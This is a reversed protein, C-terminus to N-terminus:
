PVIWKLTIAQQNHILRVFYVGSSRNPLLESLQIQHTGPAVTGLSKNSVQRGIADIVSLQTIGASYLEFSLIENGDGPNPFIITNERMLSMEDISLTSNAINIDDIFIANGGGDTIEFKLMVSEDNAFAALNVTELRWQSESTPTFSSFNGSVTALSEGIKSFRPSWTRGCNRSVYVILRDESTATRRAYAVRFTANITGTATRMNLTPSIISSVAGTPLADNYRLSASGTFAANTVRSFANNGTSEILWNEATTASLQPFAANEFGEFAPANIAGISPSITIIQQRTRQNSGVNNSVTLTVSYTGPESYVVSPNQLNSSAPNGGPFSWEWNTIEGNFSLDTFNVSEGSCAYSISPRFDAIPACENVFGDSTGTFTLNNASWLNNRSAVPSSLAAQMRTNQGNTFMIACSSYDMYNQVNDLSGCSVQALNCSQNAVGITNPTDAVGDDQNCNTALGPNNSPGWPHRLNLYHGVEHTLTRAAFNGGTSTGISGFQRNIVVIGDFSAQPASGPLYAYGGAGIGISEVVWINLYRSTTWSVLQKVNDGANFTLPSATRTIGETCNGQPDRRALRFEINCNALRDQFEPIVSTQDQNQLKYDENLIRIADLVQARSINESGYNHIIHVVVPIIRVNAREPDSEFEFQATFDELANMQERLQPNNLLAQEVFHDTGCTLNQAHSFKFAFSLALLTLFRTTSATIGILIKIM